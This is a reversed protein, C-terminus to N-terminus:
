NISKCPKEYVKDFATEVQERILQSSGNMKIIVITWNWKKYPEQNINIGYDSDLKLCVEFNTSGKNKKYNHNSLHSLLRKKTHYSHGRYIAKQNDYIFSCANDKFNYDTLIVYFGRGYYAKDIDSENKLNIIQVNSDENNFNIESLYKEFDSIIKEKLKSLENRYKSITKQMLKKIIVALKYIGAM